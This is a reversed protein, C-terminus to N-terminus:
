NFLLYAKQPLSIQDVQVELYFEGTTKSAVDFYAKGLNDTTPQITDVTINIQDPNVITVTKGIVGLGQGNLVFVSIRIKHKGDGKAKSPVSIVYSNEPSFSSNITSARGTMFRAEYFFFLGSFFMLVIIFLLIGIIAKQM